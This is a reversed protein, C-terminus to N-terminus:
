SRPANRRAILEDLKSVAKAQTLGLRARDSPTFGMLSEAKTLRDDLANLEALAPHLRPQGKSGHTMVGDEELLQMLAARRDYTECYRVVLSRDSEGIWTGGYTWV